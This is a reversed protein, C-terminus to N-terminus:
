NLKCFGGGKALESGFQDAVVFLSDGSHLIALDRVSEQASEGPEREVHRVCLGFLVARSNGKVPVEVRAELVVGVVEAADVLKQRADLSVGAGGLLVLLLDAGRLELLNSQGGELLLRHVM